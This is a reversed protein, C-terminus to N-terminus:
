KAAVGNVKEFSRAGVLGLMGLLIPMLENLSLTPFTLLKGFLMAVWTGIPGILFQTAFALVCVWGMAPRWGAVFTSPSAAEIKNIELQAAIVQLEGSQQLKFLELQAQAKKDPDQWLRDILKGGINLVADIMMM